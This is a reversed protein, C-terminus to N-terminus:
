RPWYTHGLGARFSPALVPGPLAGCAVAAGKRRLSIVGNPATRHLVTPHEVTGSRYAETGGPYSRIDGEQQVFSFDKKKEM